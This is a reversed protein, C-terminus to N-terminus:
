QEDDAVVVFAVHAAPIIVRKGQWPGPRKVVVALGAPHLAMASVETGQPAQGPLYTAGPERVFLVDGGVVHNAGPKINASQVREGCRKLFPLHKVDAKAEQAM